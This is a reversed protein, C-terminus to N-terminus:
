RSTILVANAITNMIAAREDPEDSCWPKGYLAGFILDCAVKRNEKPILPSVAKAIRKVDEQSDCCQGYPIKDEIKERSIM